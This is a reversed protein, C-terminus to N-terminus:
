DHVQFGKLTNKPNGIFRSVNRGVQKFPILARGQITKESSKDGQMPTIFGFVRGVGGGILGTLAGKRCSEFWREM